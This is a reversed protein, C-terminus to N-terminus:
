MSLIVLNLMGAYQQFDEETDDSFIITIETPHDVDEPNWAFGEITAEVEGGHTIEGEIDRKEYRDGQVMDTEVVESINMEMKWDDSDELEVLWSDDGYGTVYYDVQYSTTRDIAWLHVTGDFDLSDLITTDVEVNTVISAGLQYYGVIEYVISAEDAVDASVYHASFKIWAIDDSDVNLGIWINTPITDDAAEYFELSDVLLEAAHTVYATDTYDWTFLIANAPDDPDVHIWGQLDVYDWTGYLTDLGLPDRMKRLNATPSGVDDKFVIAPGPPNSNGFSELAQSSESMYANAMIANLGSLFAKTDDPTTESSCSVLTLLLGFSAVLLCFKLFKM